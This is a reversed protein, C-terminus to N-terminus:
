QTTSMDVFFTNWFYTPVWESQNKYMIKLHSNEHRDFEDLMTTWNRKFESVTLSHNIVVRLQEGFDDLNNYLAGFHERAKRM